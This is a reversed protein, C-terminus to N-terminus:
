SEVPGSVDAAPVTLLTTVGTPHILRIELATAGALLPSEELARDILMGVRGGATLWPLLSPSQFVVGRDIGPKTVEQGGLIVGGLTATRLGMVVSLVTSKGCGSHGLLCVFDGEHIKLDFDQVVATAGFAVTLRSIELFRDNM